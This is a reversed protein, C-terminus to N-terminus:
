LLPLNLTVTTGEGPVSSFRLRYQPGFYLQLRYNINQIGYHSASWSEDVADSNLREVTGADMGAGDDRITITYFAERVTGTITITGSKEKKCMIGHMISNEILPQFTIKPISYQLISPPVDVQLTLLGPYRINQISFYAEVLQMEQWIQYIDEGRNLSLKYFSSLSGILKDITQYNQLYSYSSILELTNYLFHPNIQAQLAKLEAAKLNIGSIYKAEILEKMKEIMDNYENILVGIEDHSRDARIVHLEGTKMRQMGNVVTRIRHTINNSLFVTSTFMIIGIIFVMFVFRYANGSSLSTAGLSKIPVITMMLWNSKDFLRVGIYCPTQGDSKKFWMTKLSSYGKEPTVVDSGDSGKSVSAIVTGDTTVICSTSGGVVLSDRLITEVNSKSFDLKIISEYDGYYNYDVAKVAYSLTDEPDSGIISLPSQLNDESSLWLSRIPSQIFDNYWQVNSLTQLDFYNYNDLMYQYNSSIYLALRQINQASEIYYISSSISSKLSLQTQIDLASAPLRIYELIRSDNLLLSVSRKMDSMQTSLVSYAQEYATELSAKAVDSSFRVTHDVYLYTALVLPIFVSSMFVCLLKTYLGMNRFKSRVYQFGNLLFM